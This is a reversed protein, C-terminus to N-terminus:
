RKAHGIEKTGSSRGEHLRDCERRYARAIEEAEGKGKPIWRGKVGGGGPKMKQPNAYSVTIQKDLLWAGDLSNIADKAEAETALMM